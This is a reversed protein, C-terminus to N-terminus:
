VPVRTFEVRVWDGGPLDPVPRVDKVVRSHQRGGAVLVVEDGVVFGRDIRVIEGHEPITADAPWVDLVHKM